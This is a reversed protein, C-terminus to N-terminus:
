HFARLCAWLCAVDGVWYLTTGLFAGAHKGPQAALRRVVHLADLAHHVGSRWGRRGELRERYALALVAAVFGLPVAVVWPLTVGTRCGRPRARSLRRRLRSLGPDRLRARGAALRRRRPSRARVRHPLRGGVRSRDPSRHRALGRDGRAPRAARPATRPASASP